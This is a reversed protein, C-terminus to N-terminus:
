IQQDIAKKRKIKSIVIDMSALGMEVEAIEKASKLELTVDHHVHNRAKIIARMEAAAIITKNGEFVLPTLTQIDTIDDNFFLRISRMFKIEGKFFKISLKELVKSSERKAAAKKAEKAAKKELRKANNKQWNLLNAQIIDDETVQPVVEEIKTFEERLLNAIDVVVKTTPRAPIEIGKTALFNVATYLDIDLERLLTNLRILKVPPIVEEEVEVEEIPQFDPIYPSWSTDLMEHLHRIASKGSGNSLSAINMYLPTTPSQTYDNICSIDSATVMWLDQGYLESAKSIAGAYTRATNVALKKEDIIYKRYYDKRM